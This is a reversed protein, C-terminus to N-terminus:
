QEGHFHLVGLAYKSPTRLDHRLNPEQSQADPTDPVPPAARDAEVRRCHQM